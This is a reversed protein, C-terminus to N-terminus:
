TMDGVIGHLIPLIDEEEQSLTPSLVRNVKRPNNVIADFNRGAAQATEKGLVVDGDEAELQQSRGHQNFSMRMVAEDGFVIFKDHLTQKGRYEFMSLKGLGRAHVDTAEAQIRQLIARTSANIGPVDCSEASNTLIQVNVGRRIARVITREIGPLQLFYAQAIKLTKGKGLGNTLKEIAMSVRQINDKGPLDSISLVKETAGAEGAVAEPPIVSTAAIEPKQSRKAEDNYINRVAELGAVAGSGKFIMDLGSWGYQPDNEDRIDFLYQTGDNRDTAIRIPNWNKGAAAKAEATCDVLIAKAHMGHLVNKEDHWPLVTVGAQAMQALLAQEGEDRSAVTGDVVLNVKVGRKAAAILADVTQKGADDPYIKWMPYYIDTKAGAVAELRRELAKNNEGNGILEPPKTAYFKGGTLREMEPIFKSSSISTPQGPTGNSAEVRSTVEEAIKALSKYDTNITGDLNVHRKAEARIGTEIQKARAEAKKWDVEGDKSAMAGGLAWSMQTLKSPQGDHTETAAATIRQWLVQPDLRRSGQPAKINIYNQIIAKLQGLRPDNSLNSVATTVRATMPVPPANTDQPAKSEPKKPTIELWKSKPATGQEEPTAGPTFVRVFNKKDILNHSVEVQQGELKTIGMSALATVLADPSIGVTARLFMDFVPVPVDMSNPYHGQRENWRSLDNETSLIKLNNGTIFKRIESKATAADQAAKVLLPNITSPASSSVPAM